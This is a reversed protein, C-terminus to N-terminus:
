TPFLNVCLMLKLWVLMLEDADCLQTLRKLGKTVEQGLPKRVVFKDM